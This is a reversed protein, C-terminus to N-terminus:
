LKGKLAEFFDRVLKDWSFKEVIQRHEEPSVPNPTVKFIDVLQTTIDKDKYITIAHERYWDYTPDDPVLPRAGCMLGEIAMLEFGEIFRLASVYQTSNLIDALDEDEMYPLFFYHKPDWGFNGGTQFLSFGTTKCAEFLKDIGETEAVHGTAMVKINRRGKNSYKFVAPDAGWPMGYYPIVKDTYKRLDHFSVALLAQEWYKAYDIEHASATFYCHQIIVKPKPKECMEVEGGGVVHVIMIDASEYDTWEVWSPAHVHLANSIRKFAIGWDPCTYEFIKVKTKEM